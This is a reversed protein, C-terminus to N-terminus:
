STFHVLRTYPGDMPDGLPVDSEGVDSETVASEAAACEAAAARGRTSANALRGRGLPVRRTSQAADRSSGVERERAGVTAVASM